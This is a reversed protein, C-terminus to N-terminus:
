HCVLMRAFRSVDDCTDRLERTERTTLTDNDTAFADLARHIARLAERAAVLAEHSRPAPASITADTSSMTKSVTKSM